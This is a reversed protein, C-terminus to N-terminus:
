RRAPWRAWGCCRRGAPRPWACRRWCPRSARASPRCGPRGGGSTDSALAACRLVAPGAARVAAEAPTAWRCAAARGRGGAAEADFAVLRPGAGAGAALVLDARLLYCCGDWEAAVLQVGAPRVGSSVVAAATSLRPLAALARAGAPPAAERLARALDVVADARAAAYDLMVAPRLGALLAALDALLRTRARRLGGDARAAAAVAAALRVDLAAALGPERV